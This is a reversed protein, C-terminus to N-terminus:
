RVSRLTVTVNDIDADTAVPAFVRLRDGAAFAVAVGGATTFTFVGSTNISITGVSAGNKWVDMDFTAAPNGTLAGRSGSLNAAFTAADTFVHDLLVESSLPADVFSFPVLYLFANAKFELGDETANVVVAKGAHGTYSSPFDALDTLLTAGGSGGFETFVLGTTGVVIPDTDTTLMFASDAWVTGETVIVVLGPKIEAANDFDTARVAPAGPTYIGNEEPATQSMVLVRNNAALLVGDHTSGVDLGTALNVNATTRARAQKKTTISDLSLPDVFELATAGANVRVLKGGHGTYAAPVDSLDTFVVAGTAVEAAWAAGDWRYPVNEDAVWVIFGELPTIYVWAGNDRIAIKNINATGTLIYMDGDAPSGPEAAVRDLVKCQVLASLIRLNSDHQDKWNDEGLLWFGFLGLGPLVRSAM